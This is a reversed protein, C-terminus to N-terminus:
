KILTIKKTIFNNESKFNVLYTGSNYNSADWYVKNTEKSQLNFSEIINGYVDFISITFNNDLADTIDFIINSNFPNPYAKFLSFNDSINVGLENVILMDIVTFIEGWEGNGTTYSLEPIYEIDESADWVKIQINNNNIWGALQYGDNFDCYDISGFGSITIQEGNYIGAGVLLEGYQDSCDNSLLGNIDFLGIEDGPDLGFCQEIIVPQYIGTSDPLDYFHIQTFILNIFYLILLKYM